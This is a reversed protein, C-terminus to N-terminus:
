ARDKQAVSVVNKIMVLWENKNKRLVSDVAAKKTVIKKAIEAIYSYDDIYVALYDGDRVNKLSEMVKDIAQEKQLGRLDLECDISFSDDEM